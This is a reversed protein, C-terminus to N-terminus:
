FLVTTPHVGAVLRPSYLTMLLKDAVEETFDPAEVEQVRTGM